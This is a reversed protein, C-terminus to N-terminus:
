CKLYKYVIDINLRNLYPQTTCPERQPVLSKGILARKVDCECPLSNGGPAYYIPERFDYEKQADHRVVTPCLLVCANVLYELFIVPKHCDVVPMVSVVSVTSNGTLVSDMITLCWDYPSADSMGPRCLTYYNFCESTHDGSPCHGHLTAQGQRSAHESSVGAPLAAGAM